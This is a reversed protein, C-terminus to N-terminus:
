NTDLQTWNTLANPNQVVATIEPIADSTETAAVYAQIVVTTTPPATLLAALQDVSSCAQIQSERTNSITRISDRYATIEPPLGLEPHEVMRTVRWDTPSLLELATQKQKQVWQVILTQLDKPNDQGWYFRPDYYPTQVPEIYLIGIATRQEPTANLLWDGPYQNGETDTFPRGPQLTEGDLQYPM